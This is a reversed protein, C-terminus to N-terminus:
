NKDSRMSMVQGTAIFMLSRDYSNKNILKAGSNLEINKFQQIISREDRKDTGHLFTRM